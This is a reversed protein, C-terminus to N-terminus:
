RQRLEVGLEGTRRGVSAQDDRTADRSTMDSSGFSPTVHFDAFALNGGELAIHLKRTRVRKRSKTAIPVAM